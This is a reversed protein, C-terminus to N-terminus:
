HSSNLRTSKRDGFSEFERIPQDITTLEVVGNRALVFDFLKMGHQYEEVISRNEGGGLGALAQGRYLEGSFEFRKGLPTQWDATLAWANVDQREGWHQRSFYNGVGFGARGSASLWGIRSQWAPQGSKQGAGPDLYGQDEPDEGSLPDLIGGQLQLKSGSALPVRYEGRVQAAWTWINGFYSLAPVAVSSYSTPSRMSFVPAEQGAMLSFRDWDIQFKATRLRALGSAVGLDSSYM